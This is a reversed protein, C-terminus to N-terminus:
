DGGPTLVGGRVAWGEGPAVPLATKAPAEPRYLIVIPLGQRYQRAIRPAEREVPLHTFRHRRGAADAFSLEAAYMRRRPRGSEYEEYNEFRALAPLGRSLTKQQQRRQRRCLWRVFLVVAPVMLFAFVGASAPSFRGGPLLALRPVAAVYRVPLAGPHVAAGRGDFLEEALPSPSVAYNTAEVERGDAAAFRFDVRYVPRKKEEWKTAQRRVVDATGESGAARILPQLPLLWPMFFMPVITLILLMFWTYLVLSRSARPPGADHFRRLFETSLTRPVGQRLLEGMGPYWADLGAPGRLASQDESENAM